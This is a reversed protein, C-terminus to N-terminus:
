DGPHATLRRALGGARPSVWLDGAYAFVVQTRSVTPKQLLLPKDAEGLAIGPGLLLLLLPISAKHM